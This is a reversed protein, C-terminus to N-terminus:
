VVLIKNLESPSLSDGDIGNRRTGHRSITDWRFHLVHNL